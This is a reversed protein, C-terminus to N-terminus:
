NSKINDFPVYVDSIEKIDNIDYEMSTTFIGKSLKNVKFFDGSINVIKFIVKEGTNLTISDSIPNEEISNIIKSIATKNKNMYLNVSHSDVCECLMNRYGKTLNPTYFGKNYFSSIFSDVNNKDFELPNYNFFIGAMKSVYNERSQIEFTVYYTKNLKLTDCKLNQSHCSIFLLIILLFLKKM